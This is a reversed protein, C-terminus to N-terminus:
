FLKGQKEKKSKESNELEEKLGNIAKHMKKEKQFAAWYYAEDRTGRTILIILKGKTLRAVRGARQIKRIASPIPEYFVVLNVEPIDLGEEGISTSVLVNVKGLSFEKILGQQEKQNLGTAKDGEGKKAQGVFVRANIGKILNLEKCIKVVSDRFQAFVIAKNKDKIENAIIEKLKNLKPHEINRAILEVLKIYAENFESMNVLQIVGQSEKKRASDFLSEIYEKLSSLTQTELLELAHGIKLTQGCVKAGILLNFHKNGNIIQRMIKKQLELLFVKTARGFLLKRNKLEEVKRDYIIKLKERIEDFEEPFDVKIVDFKLEKLYEKVDDSERTRVEVAEIGLNDTIQKIKEKEHGPSATLGLVRPNNASKKYEEVVYTYAYNKICRHAEDEILLSVDRLNYLENKLDNGICQPTSFVIDARQWLERRKEANKKGTFLELQAFLEPLNKKFYNFHQEILPRTPALLLVKSDPYKLMRDITLMLAILTKGLGTPLIVLCSKEKCTNLIQWQYERPEIERLFKKIEEM